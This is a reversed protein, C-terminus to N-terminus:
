PVPAIGDPQCRQSPVFEPVPKHQPGIRVLLLRPGAVTQALRAAGVLDGQRELLDRRVDVEQLAQPPHAPVADIVASLVRQVRSGRLRDRGIRGSAAFLSLRM